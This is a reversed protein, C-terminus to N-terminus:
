PQRPTVVRYFRGAAPADDTVTEARSTPGAVIDVLKTWGVGNTLDRFEMTYTRYAAAGFHLVVGQGAGAEITEVRLYSDPDTPDTGATDEDRNNFGDGDMDLGADAPDNPNLGYATEYDDGLGDGDLDPAVTLTARMSLTGPTSFAANTLVVSYLGADNTQANHITHFHRHSHIMVNTLTFSGRRWRYSM